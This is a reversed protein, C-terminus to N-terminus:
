GAAQVPEIRILRTYPIFDLLFPGKDLDRVVLAEQTGTYTRNWGLGVLQYTRTATEIERYTVHAIDTGTEIVSRFAETIATSRDAPDLRYLAKSNTM